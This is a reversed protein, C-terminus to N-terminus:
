NAIIAAVTGDRGFGGIEETISSYWIFIEQFRGASLPPYSILPYLSSILVAVLVNSLAIVSQSASFSAFMREVLFQMTCTSSVRRNDGNLRSSEYDTLALTVAIM